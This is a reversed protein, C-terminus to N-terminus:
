PRSLAELRREIKPLEREAIARLVPDDGDAIYSVYDTEIQKLADFQQQWYLNEFGVGSLSRLRDLNTAGLPVRTDPMVEEASRAVAVSRGTQMPAEASALAVLSSRGTGSWLAIAGAATSQENAEERAFTLM